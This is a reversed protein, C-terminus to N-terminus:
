WAPGKENSEDHTSLRGSCIGGGIIAISKICWIGHLASPYVAWGLLAWGPTWFLVTNGLAATACLCSQGRKKTETEYNLRKDGM